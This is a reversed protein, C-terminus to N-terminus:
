WNARTGSFSALTISRIPVALECTHILSMFLDDAETGHLTRCFLAQVVHDHEVFSAQVLVKLAENAVIM